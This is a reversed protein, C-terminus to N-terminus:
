DRKFDKMLVCNNGRKQDDFITKLKEFSKEVQNMPYFANDVSIAVVVKKEVLLGGLDPMDFYLYASPIYECVCHQTNLLSTKYSCFGDVCVCEKIRDDYCAAYFATTAGNKYGASVIKDVKIEEFNLIADIARRIDWVREGVLTRGLHWAVGTAHLCSDQWYHEEDKEYNVGRQYVSLVTCNKELAETIFTKERENDYGIPLVIVTTKDRRVLPLRLRCFCKVGTESDFTIEFVGEGTKKTKLHLDCAKEEVNKVGIVEIFKEYLAKQWAKFDMDKKYSLSPQIKQILIEHCEDGNIANIEKM